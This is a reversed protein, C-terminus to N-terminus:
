GSARTLLPWSRDQDAIVAPPHPWIIGFAPDDWRYGKAQGPVYPRGMQYLVDTDPELTLFGHAFGEPIYLAEAGEADLRIAVHHLYTPSEPRVDVVVDHIAGRMVRVIKAEAYPVDQFHMGRLTFAATNRSLNIQTSTFEIGAGANEAPCYLRAFFGREDRRPDALLRVVGPLTTPEFRM